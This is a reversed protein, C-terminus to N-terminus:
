GRYKLNYKELLEKCEGEGLENQMNTIIIRIVEREEYTSNNVMGSHEALQILMKLYGKTTKPINM